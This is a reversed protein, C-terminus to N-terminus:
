GAVRVDYPQPVNDSPRMVAGDVREAVAAAPVQHGIVMLWGQEVAYSYLERWAEDQEEVTEAQFAVDALEAYRGRDTGIPDYPGGPSMRELYHSEATFGRAITPTLATTGNRMVAALTGPEVLEVTVDLGLETWMQQLAEAVPVLAGFSHLTVSFGDAYGAEALLDRARDLDYSLEELSEDYYPTEPPWFSPSPIGRGFQLAASFAERNIALNMATRVRQDGLAPILSGDTDMMQVYYVNTNPRQSLEYGAAVLSNRDAEAAEIVDVQGGMLANVAAVSELFRLEVREVGIREPQWYDDRAVM